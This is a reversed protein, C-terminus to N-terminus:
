EIRNCSRWEFRNFIDWAVMEWRTSATVLRERAETPTLLSWMRIFATAKFIVKPIPGKWPRIAAAATWRHVMRRVIEVKDERGLGQRAPDDVPVIGDVIAAVDEESYGPDFAECIVSSPTPPYAEPSGGANDEDDDDEPDAEALAWFRGGARGVGSTVPPRGSTATVPTVQTARTAGEMELRCTEARARVAENEM